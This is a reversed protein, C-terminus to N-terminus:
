EAQAADADPTIDTAPAWAEVNFAGDRVTQRVAETLQDPYAEDTADEEDLSLLITVRYLRTM